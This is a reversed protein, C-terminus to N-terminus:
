INSMKSIIECAVYFIYTLNSLVESINTGAHNNTDYPQGM